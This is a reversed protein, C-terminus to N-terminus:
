MRMQLSLGARFLGLDTAPLPAVAPDPEFRFESGRKGFPAEVYAYVRVEAVPVLMFDLRSFFSTDTVNMLTTFTLTPVYISRRTFSLQGMAYARGFFLPRYDGTSHLWTLVTPDDYGLGNYFGEVNLGLRYVDAFRFQTSAGGSARLRPGGFDLTRFGETTREWLPVESDQLLAVEANLDVPGAGMSWDLGFRPRRGERFAASAALESPGLAVEARVAGGYRLRHEAPGNLDATAILWLHASMEQWPINVKLMDVGPRLDFAELPQPNPPQLFDTPNWVLSSGWKIQQRGATIFVRNDIDFRIWLQDLLATPGSTDPDLADYALRGVVYGRMGNAQNADLYLDVLSPISPRLLTDTGRSAGFLEARQYIRGGVTLLNRQLDELNFAPEPAEEQSASAQAPEEGANTLTAPQLSLDLEDSAPAPEEREAELAPPPTPTRQAVPEPAPQAATPEPAPPTYVLAKVRKKEFRVSLGLSAYHFSLTDDPALVREYCPTQREAASGCAPGHTKELSARTPPRKPLVEIRQLVDDEGLLFQVRRTGPPASKQQYTLLLEGTSSTKRRSPKGFTELLEEQTTVGPRAGNWGQAAVTCSWLLFLGAAMRAFTPLPTMLFPAKPTRSYLLM